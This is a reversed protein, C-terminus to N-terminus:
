AAEVAMSECAIEVTEVAVEESDPKPDTGAVKVPFANTLTWRMKPAGAEDLLSIAVTRRRISNRRTAALWDWFISEKALVGKKLTVNGVSRLVPLKIASFVKGDSHRYEIPNADSELGSVEAFGQPRGDGLDVSFAFKPRPRDRGQAGGDDTM